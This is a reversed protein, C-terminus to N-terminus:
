FLKAKNSLMIGGFTRKKKNIEKGNNNNNVTTVIEKKIKNSESQDNDYLHFTSNFIRKTKM